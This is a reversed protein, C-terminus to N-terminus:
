GGGVFRVIEVIAEEELFQKEWEERDLIKGNYEVVVTEGSVGKRVLLDQVTEGPNATEKEGNVYIEM